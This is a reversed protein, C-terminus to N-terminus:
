LIDCINGAGVVRADYAARMSALLSALRHEYTHQALVRRRARRVLAQREDPSALWRRVMEPIEEVRDYCAAERGPDFLLELQKREDTLLFGGCAPVDFVRQNVAGKMQASTCNFNVDAAAYYGPLETYYNMRPMFRFSPEPLLAPWAEDGAVLTPHPALARVCAVRYHHAASFTVLSEAALRGEPSLAAVEAALEPRSERLYAASSRTEAEAFDRGAEVLRKGLLDAGLSAALGRVRAAISEGVFSVPSRWEPRLPAGPAFRKPDTGLPLYEAHSFGQGHLYSLSDADFSFVAINSRSQGPWGHLILEPSDVFWSALPLRAKELLAAIRGERDLGFHNVTLLFDPQFRAIGLLLAEMFEPRVTETEGVEISANPVQLRDLAEQIEAYLFYNRRLLLVRPRVGLFKPYRAWRPPGSSDDDAGGPADRLADALARYHSPALRLYLPVRLVHLPKGLGRGWALIRDLTDKFDGDLWLVNQEDAFRERVGTAAQISAERDVVAVPGNRSLMELCVGLGSGLLVPLAGAPLSSALQRERDQGGRGWCRMERNAGPFRVLIDSAGDKDGEIRVDYKLEGM